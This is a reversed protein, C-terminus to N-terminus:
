TTDCREEQLDKFAETGSSYPCKWGDRFAAIVVFFTKINRDALVGRLM